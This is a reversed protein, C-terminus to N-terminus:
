YKVDGGAVTPVVVDKKFDRKRPNPIISALRNAEEQTLAAPSKSFYHSAAEHIGYVDVGWEIINAYIEFINEKSLEQELAYTLIAEQIKRSLTREGSLYLNKVLQMSITSGGQVYGNSTLNQTLARKLSDLNFGSHSFFGIDEAKIVAQRLKESIQTYPVYQPNTPSLFIERIVTGNRKVQHTYGGTKLGKISAGPPDQILSYGAIRIGPDVRAAEPQAPDANLVFDFGVSGEVLAGKVKPILGYPLVDILSQIPTDPLSISLDVATQPESTVKANVRAFIGQRGILVDNLTVTHESRNWRITGKVAIDAIDIPRNSLGKHVVRVATIQADTKISMQSFGEISVKVDGTMQSEPTLQIFQPLLLRIKDLSLDSFGFSFWSNIQEEANIVVAPDSVGVYPDPKPEIPDGLAETVPEENLEHVSIPDAGGQTVQPPTNDYKEASHGKEDIKEPKSSKTKYKSAWVDSPGILLSIVVIHLILLHMSKITRMM